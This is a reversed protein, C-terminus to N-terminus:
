QALIELIESVEGYWSHINGDELNLQSFRFM